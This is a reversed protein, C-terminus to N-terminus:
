LDEISASMAVVGEASVCYHVMLEIGLAMFTEYLSKTFTIDAGSMEGKGYPHNHAISVRRASRSM